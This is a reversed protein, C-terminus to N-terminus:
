DGAAAILLMALQCDSFHRCQNRVCGRSWAAVLPLIEADHYGM